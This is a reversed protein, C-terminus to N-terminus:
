PKSPVFQPHAKWCAFCLGLKRAKKKQSRDSDENVGGYLWARDIGGEPLPVVGRADYMTPDGKCEQAESCPYTATINGDADIEHKKWYCVGSSLAGATAQTPAATSDPSAMPTSAANTAPTAAITSATGSPTQKVPSGLQAARKGQLQRIKNGGIKKRAAVADQKASEVGERSTQYLHLKNNLLKKGNYEAIAIRADRESGFTIKATVLPKTALIRCDLVKCGLKHMNREFKRETVSSPFNKAIVICPRVEDEKSDSEDTMDNHVHQRAKGKDPKGHGVITQTPNAQRVVSGNAGPVPSVQRRASERMQRLKKQDMVEATLKHNGELAGDTASCAESAESWTGFTVVATVKPETSLIECKLVGGVDGNILTTIRDETTGRPFNEVILMPTNDVSEDKASMRVGTDVIAPGSTGGILSKSGNLPTVNTSSPLSSNASQVLGSISSGLATKPDPKPASLTGINSDVPRQEIPTTISSSIRISSPPQSPGASFATSENMADEAEYEHGMVDLGDSNLGRHAGKQNEAHLERKLGSDPAKGAKYPNFFVLTSASARRVTGEVPRRYSPRLLTAVSTSDQPRTSASSGSEYNAEPTGGAIELSAVPAADVLQGSQNGSDKSDTDMALARELDGAPDEEDDIDIDMNEDNDHVNLDHMEVDMSQGGSEPQDSPAGNTNIASFAAENELESINAHLNDNASLAEGNEFSIDEMSEEHSGPQNALAANTNIASLGDDGELERLDTHLKDNGGLAKSSELTVDEMQNARGDYVTGRLEGADNGGGVHADHDHADNAPRSAEMPASDKEELARAKSAQSNDHDDDEDEDDDGDKNRPEHNSADKGDKSEEEDEQKLEFMDVQDLLHDAAPESIEFNELLTKKVKKVLLAKSAQRSTVQDLLQQKQTLQNTKDSLELSINRNTTSLAQVKGGLEENKQRLEKNKQFQDDMSADSTKQHQEYELIEKYRKAEKKSLKEYDAKLQEYQRPLDAYKTAESQTMAEELASLPKSKENLQETKRSAERAKPRLAQDKAADKRSLNVVQESHKSTMATLQEDKFSLVQTKEELMSKLGTVEAELDQCKNTQAILKSSLDDKMDLENTKERLSKELDDVRTELRECKESQEDYQLQLAQDRIAKGAMPRQMRLDRSIREYEQQAIILQRDSKKLRKLENPDPIQERTQVLRSETRAPEEATQTGGNAVRVNRPPLDAERVEVVADRVRAPRAQRRWSTIVIAFAILWLGDRFLALVFRSVRFFEESASGAPAIFELVTLVAEVHAALTAFGNLPNVNHEGGASSILALAQSSTTNTNIANYLPAQPLVVPPISTAFDEIYVQPPADLRLPTNSLRGFIAAVAAVRAPRALFAGM